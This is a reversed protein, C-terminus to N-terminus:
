CLATALCADRFTGSAFKEKSLSFQGCGSAYEASSIDREASWIAHDAPATSTWSFSLLAAKEFSYPGVRMCYVATDVCCFLGM